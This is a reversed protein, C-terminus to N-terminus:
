QVVKEILQHQSKITLGDRKLAELLAANELKVEQVRIEAEASQM